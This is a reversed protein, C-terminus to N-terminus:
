LHLKYLFEFGYTLENSPYDFLCDSLFTIQGAGLTITKSSALGIHRQLPLFVLWRSMHGHLFHVTDNKTDRIMPVVPCNHDLNGCMAGTGLKAVKIITIILQTPTADSDSRVRQRIKTLSDAARKSISLQLKIELKNSRTFASAMRCDEAKRDVTALFVTNLYTRVDICYHPPAGDQQFWINQFNEGFM